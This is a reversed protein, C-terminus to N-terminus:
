KLEFYANWDSDRDDLYFELVIGHGAYGNDTWWRRVEEKFQELGTDDYCEQTTWEVRFSRGDDAPYKSVSKFRMNDPVRSENFKKPDFEPMQAGRCAPANVSFKIDNANM